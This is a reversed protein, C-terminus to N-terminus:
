WKGSAGGGGSSGGGFSGGGFGGGGSSNGSNRMAARILFFAIAFVAAWMVWAWGHRGQRHLSVATFVGLAIVGLGIAFHWWPTNQVAVLLGSTKLEGRAMEAMAISGAVIGGGYDDAKFRPVMRNDMIWKADDNLKDGYGAGLEIRAERDTRAVVLLMGRNYAKDGIKLQGIGWQNYLATAFQENTMNQDNYDSRREITVVILPIATQTLLEDALKKVQETQEKNLLGALDLVFDREGPRNIKIRNKVPQNSTSSASPKVATSNAAATGWIDDFSQSQDSTPAVAPTQGMLQAAGALLIALVVLLQIILRRSQRAQQAPHSTPIAKARSCLPAAPPTQIM